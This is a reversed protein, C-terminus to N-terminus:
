GTMDEIDIDHNKTWHGIDDSKGRVIMTEFHQRVM